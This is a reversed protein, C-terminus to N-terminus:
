AGPRGAARRASRRRAGRHQSVGGGGRLPRESEARVLASLLDLADGGAWHLDDLLLLTGAPGAVNALYRGVAAFMLRQEDAPPPAWTPAPVVATEGLEPLLRVLWACGHLDARQQTPPQHALHWALAGVLPAYPEQGGRRQCGGALVCWGGERAREAAEDLLRTKGIGPEGALLLLPASDGALLSELALCERQRGVLPPIAGHILPLPLQHPLPPEPSRQRRAAAEFRAREPPALHLADALHTITNKYPVRLLGRELDSITHTSVGSREGLQEQTLRAALRYRKLLQGFTLPQPIATSM